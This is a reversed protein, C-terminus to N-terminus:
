YDPTRWVLIAFRNVFFHFMCGIEHTCYSGYQFRGVIVHWARQDLSDLESKIYKAVDKEVSFEDQAKRALRVILRQLDEPMEKDLAIIRVGDMDDRDDDAGAAGAQVRQETVKEIYDENPKLGLVECYEEISITGSNDIDFLNLWKQTFKEDFNQRKCYAELEERTIEGSFDTDISEFAKLFDAM